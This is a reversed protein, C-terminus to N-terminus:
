LSPKPQKARIELNLGQLAHRLQWPPISITCVDTVLKAFELLLSLCMFGLFFIDDSGGVWVSVFNAIGACLSLSCYSPYHFARLMSLSRAAVLGSVCSSKSNMTPAWCWLYSPSPPSALSPHSTRQGRGGMVHPEHLSLVQTPNHEHHL